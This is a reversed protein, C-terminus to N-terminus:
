GNIAEQKVFWTSTSNKHESAVVEQYGNAQLWARANAEDTYEEYEPGIYTTGDEAVDLWRADKPLVIHPLGATEKQFEEEQCERLLREGKLLIPLVPLSVVCLPVAWLLHLPNGGGGSFVGMVGYWGIAAPSGILCLRRAEGLKDM